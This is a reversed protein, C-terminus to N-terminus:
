SSARSFLPIMSLWKTFQREITKGTVPDLRLRWGSWTWACLGDATMEFQVIRDPQSPLEPLKWIVNGSREVCLLNEFVQRESAMWDILILCRQGDIPSAGIVKMGQYSGNWSIAGDRAQFVTLQHSPISFVETAMLQNSALVFSASSEALSIKPIM